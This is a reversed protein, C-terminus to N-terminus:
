YKYTCLVYMSCVYYTCWVDMSCVHYMCTHVHYKGTNWLTSTCYCSPLRSGRRSSRTWKPFFGEKWHQLMRCKAAKQQLQSLFSGSYLRCDTLVLNSRARWAVWLSASPRRLKLLTQGQMLFIMMMLVPVALTKIRGQLPPSLSIVRYQMETNEVFDQQSLLNFGTHVIYMCTHVICTCHWTIYICPVFTYTCQVSMYM